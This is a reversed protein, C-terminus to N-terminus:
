PAHWSSVIINPSSLIFGDTARLKQVFSGKFLVYVHMNM